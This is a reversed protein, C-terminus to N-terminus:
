ASKQSDERTELRRLWSVQISVWFRSSTDQDRDKSRFRPKYSRSAKYFYPIRSWANGPTRCPLLSLRACSALLSCRLRSRLAVPHCEFVPAQRVESSSEIIKCTLFLSDLKDGLSQEESRFAVRRFANGMVSAM